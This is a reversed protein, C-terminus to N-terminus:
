SDLRQLIRDAQKIYKDIRKLLKKRQKPTITQMFLYFHEARKARRETIKQHLDEGRLTRKEIFLQRMRRTLEEADTRHNELMDFFYAIWRDYYDDYDKSYDQRQNVRLEIAAKQEDTLSGVWDELQEEIQDRIKKRAKQEDDKEEQKREEWQENWTEKMQALQDDSMSRFFRAFSPLAKEFLNPALSDVWAWLKNGDERTFNNNAIAIRLSELQAKARPLENRKHWEVLKAVEQEIIDEQANTLSMYDELEWEVYWDVYKYYFSLSCGSLLLVSSVVALYQAFRKM